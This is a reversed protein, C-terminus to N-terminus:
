KENREIVRYATAQTMQFNDRFNHFEIMNM